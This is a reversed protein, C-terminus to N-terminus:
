LTLELIDLFVSFGQSSFGFSVLGFGVLVVVVMEAGQEITSPFACLSGCGSM